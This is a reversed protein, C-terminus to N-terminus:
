LKPAKLQLQQKLGGLDVGPREKAFNEISQQVSRIKSEDSAPTKKIVDSMVATYVDTPVKPDAIVTLAYSNFQPDSRSLATAAAARIESPTGENLFIKNRIYQQHEPEKALYSVARSQAAVSGKELYRAIYSSNTRAPGLAYYSVADEEKIRGSETSSAIQNLGASDGITALLSAAITRIEPRTDDVAERLATRAIEEGASPPHIHGSGSGTPSKAHDAMALTGALFSAAAKAVELNSDKILTRATEVAALPFQATLQEFAVLRRGNAPDAAARTLQDILQRNQGYYSAQNDPVPIQTQAPAAGAAGAVLAVSTMLSRLTRNM